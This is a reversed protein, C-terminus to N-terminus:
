RKKQSFLSNHTWLQYACDRHSASLWSGLGYLLTPITLNIVKLETFFHNQGAQDQWPAKSCHYKIFPFCGTHLVHYTAGQVPWNFHSLRFHDNRTASPSVSLTGTRLRQQLLSRM